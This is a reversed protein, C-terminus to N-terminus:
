HVGGGEGDGDNGGHGDGDRLPANAVVRILDMERRLHDWAERQAEPADDGEAIVLEIVAQMEDLLHPDRTGLLAILSMLLRDNAYIRTRLQTNM